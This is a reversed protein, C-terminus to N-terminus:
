SATEKLIRRHVPAPLAFLARAPTRMAALHVLVAVAAVGLTIVLPGVWRAAAHQQLIPVWWNPFLVMAELLVGHMVYIPLTRRGVWALGPGALPVRAIYIFAALVVLAGATDRPASLVHEVSANGGFVVIGQLLAFAALAATLVRATHEELVRRLWASGYVGVAFFFAYRCVNRYQDSGELVPLSFSAISLVGLAVLLLAPDVRRLTTLLATWVALALVYWLVTRPLFLQNAFAQWAQLTTGMGLPGTWLFSGVTVAFVTFILLWVVYLWTSLAVSARVTRDRWGHRIRRSLLLGSLMSLASMRFPGLEDVLWRWPGIDVGFAQVTIVTHMLVVALVCFARAADIWVLRSTM